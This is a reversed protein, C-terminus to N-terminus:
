GHESAIFRGSGALPVSHLGTGDANMIWLRRGDESTAYLLHGDGSVWLEGLKEGGKLRALLKLDSADLVLVEDSRVVYLRLGDPSIPMTSAIFGAEVPRVLLSSLASLLGSDSM